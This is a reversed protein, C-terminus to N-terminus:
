GRKFRPAKKFRRGPGTFEIVEDERIQKQSGDELIQVIGVSRPIGAIDMIEGGTLQPKETHFEKDDVFFTYFKGGKDDVVQM